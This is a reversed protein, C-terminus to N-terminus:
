DQVIVLDFTEIVGDLDVSVEVTEDAMEFTHISGGQSKHIFVKEKPPVDFVVESFGSGIISKFSYQLHKIDSLEAVDGKYTLTLITSEKGDYKNKNDVKKVTYTADVVYIATWSESEGKYEYHIEENKSCGILFVAALSLTLMFMIMKKM